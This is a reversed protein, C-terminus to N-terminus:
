HNGAIAEELTTVRTVEFYKSFEAGWMDMEGEIDNVENMVFIVRKCDTKAMAPLLKTFAWDVDEKEDEFGNRADIIFDSNKHITLQELAYMTPKQYNEGSSFQKWALLVAGHEELYTVKCYNNDFMFEGGM